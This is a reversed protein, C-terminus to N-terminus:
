LIPYAPTGVAAGSRRRQVLLSVINRTVNRGGEKQVTARKAVTAARDLEGTKYINSLHRSIVSKDRQFLMSIQNLDLWVTEGALRVDIRDQGGETQYIIIEGKYNM